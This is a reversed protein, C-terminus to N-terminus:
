LNAKKKSKSEEANSCVTFGMQECTEIFNDTQMAEVLKAREEKKSMLLTPYNPTNLEKIHNQEKRLVDQRPVVNM